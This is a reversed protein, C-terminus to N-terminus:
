DNWIQCEWLAMEAFFALERDPSASYRRLIVLACKRPYHALITLVAEKAPRTASKDFLLEGIKMITEQPINEYGNFLVSHGAIYQGSDIADRDGNDICGSVQNIKGKNASEESIFQWFEIETM